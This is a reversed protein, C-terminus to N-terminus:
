PHHQRVPQGAPRKRREEARDGVAGGDGRLNRGPKGGARRHAAVSRHHQDLNRGLRQHSRPRVIQDRRDDSQGKRGDHRGRQRDSGVEDKRDTGPVTIAFNGGAVEELPKVLARLPKAITMAGFVASGILILIVASGIGLNVREAAKMQQEAAAAQDAALKSAIGTVTAILEKGKAVAPDLKESKIKDMQNNIEALRAANQSNAKFTAAKLPMIEKVMGDAYQKMLVGLQVIRERNAPVKLSQTLKETLIDAQKQLGDLNNAAQLEAADRSLQMDRMSVRMGAFAANLDKLDSVISKQQLAGDNSSQVLSNNYMTAAIMGAVLLIGIGSMISLKIGISINSLRFM